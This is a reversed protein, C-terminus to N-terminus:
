APQLFESAEATELEPFVALVKQLREIQGNWNGQGEFKGKWARLHSLPGCEDGLYQRATTLNMLAMRYDFNVQKFPEFGGGWSDIGERHNACFDALTGTYVVRWEEREDDAVSWARKYAVIQAEPGSGTVDYKYETDGHSDHGGTLEASENARIFQTAACGKSKNILMRYFYVAAGDLYGDHHIYITTTPQWKQTAKFRYTARTSM